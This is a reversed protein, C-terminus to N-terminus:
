INTMYRYLPRFLNFNKYSGIIPILLKKVHISTKCDFLTNSLTLTHSPPSTRPFVPPLLSNKLPFGTAHFQSFLFIKPLVYYTQIQKFQRIDDM